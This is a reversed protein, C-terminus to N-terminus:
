LAAFEGHLQLQQLAVEQHAWIRKVANRHVDVLAAETPNLHDIRGKSGSVQKAYNGVRGNYKPDETLIATREAESAQEATEFHYFTASTVENFWDKTHHQLIRRSAEHPCGVYLLEGSANFLRYVQFAKDRLVRPM